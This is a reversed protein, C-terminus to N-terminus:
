QLKFYNLKQKTKNCIYDVHKLEIYTNINLNIWYTSFLVSNILPFFLNFFIFIFIFCKIILTFQLVYILFDIIVRNQIISIIYSTV